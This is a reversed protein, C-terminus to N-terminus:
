LSSSAQVGGITLIAMATCSTTSASLGTEVISVEPTCIYGLGPDVVVISSVFMGLSPDSGMEARAQATRGGDLLCGRGIIYVTPAEM